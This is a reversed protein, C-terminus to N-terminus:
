GLPTIIGLVGKISGDAALIKRQDLFSRALSQNRCSLLANGSYDDLEFEGTEYGDAHYVLAQVPDSKAMYARPEYGLMAELAPNAYEILGTESTLYVGMPLMYLLTEIKDLSTNGLAGPLKQTGERQASFPRGHVVFYGAPRKLPQVMVIFDRRQGNATVIPFILNERANRALASFLRRTEARDVQADSFLTELANSQEKAFHAFMQHTGDNAYVVTGDRRVFFCFSSGLSAAGAFLLNQFDSAMTLDNSQQLHMFAFGCIASILAFAILSTVLPGFWQGFQLTGIVLILGVLYFPIIRKLPALYRRPLFESSVNQEIEDLFRM